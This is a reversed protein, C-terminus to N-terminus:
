KNVVGVQNMNLYSKRFLLRLIGLSGLSDPTVEVRIEQNENLQVPLENSGMWDIRASVRHEGSPLSRLLSEGRKLSDVYQGDIYIRYKRFMHWGM